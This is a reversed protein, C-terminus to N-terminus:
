CHITEFIVEDLTERNLKWILEQSFDVPEPFLIKEIPKHFKVYRHKPSIGSMCYPTRGCMLTEVAKAKNYHVINKMNEDLGTDWVMVGCYQQVRSYLQTYDAPAPEDVKPLLYPNGRGNALTGFICASDSYSEPAKPFLSENFFYDTVYTPAKFRNAFQKDFVIVKSLAGAEVMIDVRKFNAPDFTFLVVKLGAARLKALAESLQEVDQRVDFIVYHTCDPHLRGEFLYGPLKPLFAGVM